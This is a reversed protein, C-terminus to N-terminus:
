VTSAVIDLETEPDKVERLTEVVEKVEAPLDERVNGRPKQKLFDLFGMM